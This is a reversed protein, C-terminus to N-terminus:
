KTKQEGVSKKIDESLGQSSDDNLLLMVVQVALCAVVAASSANTSPFVNWGWEQMAWVAYILVPHLKAQWLLFPTTWGLYAYFQYHLSRACLMGIVMSTLLTTTIYKSSLPHRTSRGEIFKQAFFDLEEGSPRIWRTALFALILVVHLVLLNISFIPSEFVEEGVFRWNVTWEYLFQRTLEFARSAYGIANERLFPIGLLVQTLIANLALPVATWIGGSLAVVIAVGPALLLLSMKVGVGLSWVTTAATLQRRQFLFIGLWMAFTAIGDNFLRLMYVSHLRKSLVLLPLLYPPAGARIYCSLVVVLTTIYIGAFIVQGLVIDQGKNTLEYLFSYIYVHAAPYVLPGTDGKIATYDREGAQYLAIQQMYTTWDIETYPVKKIILASLVADAVVLLPAIWLSHKPNTLIDVITNSITM